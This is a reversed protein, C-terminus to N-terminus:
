LVARDKLISRHGVSRGGNAEFGAKVFKFFDDLLEFAAIERQFTRQLQELFAHCEAIGAPFLQFVGFRSDFHQDSLFTFPLGFWEPRVVFSSGPRSGRLRDFVFRVLEQCVTDV